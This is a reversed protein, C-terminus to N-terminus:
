QVGLSANFADAETQCRSQAEATIAGGLPRATLGFNIAQDGAVGEASCTLTNGGGLGFLWCRAEIEFEVGEDTLATMDFTVARQHQSITLKDSIDWEGSQAGAVLRGDSHFVLCSFSGALPSEELGQVFALYTRNAPLRNDAAWAQMSFMLAATMLFFISRWIRHHSTKTTM